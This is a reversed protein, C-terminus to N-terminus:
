QGSCVTRKLVGCVKGLPNDLLVVAFGVSALINSTPVGMALGETQKYYQQNFKFYNQEAM